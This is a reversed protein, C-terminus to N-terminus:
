ATIRKTIDYINLIMFIKSNIILYYDLFITRAIKKKIKKIPNCPLRFIHIVDLYYVIYTPFINILYRYAFIDSKKMKQHVYRDNRVILM